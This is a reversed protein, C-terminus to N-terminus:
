SEAPSKKDAGAGQKSRDRYRRVELEFENLAGIAEADLASAGFNVKPIFKDSLELAKTILDDAM